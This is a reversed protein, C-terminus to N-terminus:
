CVFATDSDTGLSFLCIAQLNTDRIFTSFNDKPKQFQLNIYWKPQQLYTAEASFTKQTAPFVNTAMNLTHNIVALFLFFILRCAFLIPSCDAVIYCLIGQDGM